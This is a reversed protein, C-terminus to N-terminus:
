PEKAGWNTPFYIVGLEKAGGIDCGLWRQIGQGDWFVPAEGWSIISFTARTRLAQGVHGHDNFSPIADVARFVLILYNLVQCNKTGKQPHNLSWKSLNLSRWSPFWFTVKFWRSSTKEQELFTIKLNWTSKEVWRSFSGLFCVGKEKSLLFDGRSFFFQTCWGDFPVGRPSLNESLPYPYPSSKPQGGEGTLEDATFPEEGVVAGIITITRRTVVVPLPPLLGIQNTTEVWRFFILWIPFRGWNERHFNWFFTQFRWRAISFLCARLHGLSKKRLRNSKRPGLPEAACM